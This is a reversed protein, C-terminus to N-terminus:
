EPQRHSSSAGREQEQESGHMEDSEDVRVIEFQDPLYQVCACVCVCYSTLSGVLACIRVENLVFWRVKIQPCLSAPLFRAHDDCFAVRM